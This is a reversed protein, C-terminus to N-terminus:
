IAPDYFKLVNPPTNVFEISIGVLRDSLCSANCFEAADQYISNGSIKAINNTFSVFRKYSNNVMVGTTDLFIAGGYVANSNTFM